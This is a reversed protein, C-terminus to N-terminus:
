IKGRQKRIAYIKKSQSEFYTRITLESTIGLLFSIISTSFLTVFLLPLPTKIFSIDDFIRLWISWIAVSIALFLLMFSFKGFFQLPKTLYKDFFKILALDLLVKFIRNLGYKSQGFVRPRHNVVVESVKGGNWNVYIPIFRHMDGYFKIEELLIKRYAKLSCGYDHLKVGSIQSILHNALKSPLIRLLRNDKRNKRWGSVVDFGDKLKSILKPIDAPDNQGDGDLVIIIDGRSNDIGAQLAATQGYNRNLQIFNLHACSNSIEMLKEATKDTSGDDIYVLEFPRGFNLMCALLEDHVNIVNPEENYFPIIVSVEPTNQSPTAM